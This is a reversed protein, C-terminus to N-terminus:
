KQISKQIFLYQYLEESSLPAIRRQIEIISWCKQIDGISIQSYGINRVTM